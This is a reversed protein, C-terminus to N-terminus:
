ISGVFIHGIGQNQTVFQSPHPRLNMITSHDLSVGQVETGSQDVFAPIVAYAYSRTGDYERDIFWNETIVGGIMTHDEPHDPDLRYLRYHTAHAHMQRIDEWALKVGGIVGILSPDFPPPGADIENGEKDILTFKSIRTRAQLFDDVDTSFIIRGKEIVACIHRQGPEYGEYIENGKSELFEGARHPPFGSVRGKQEIYDRSRLRIFEHGGFDAPKHPRITVLMKGWMTLHASDPRTVDATLRGTVESFMSISYACEGNDGEAHFALVEVPIEIHNGSQLMAVRRFMGPCSSGTHGLISAGMDDSTLERPPAPWPSDPGEDPLGVLSDPMGKPNDTRSDFVMHRDLQPLYVKVWVAIARSAIPSRIQKRFEEVSVEPRLGNLATAIKGGDIATSTDVNAPEFSVAAMPSITSRRHGVGLVHLVLDIVAGVRM